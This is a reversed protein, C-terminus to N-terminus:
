VRRKGANFEGVVVLLFFEDLQQISRELAGRDESTAGFQVLAARLKNLIQREDQLLAEQHDTLIRM